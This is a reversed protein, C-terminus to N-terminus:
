ALRARGIAVDGLCERDHFAVAVGKPLSEAWAVAPGSVRGTTVLVAGTAGEAIAAGYLDRVQAAAVAASEAYRKCQVALVEGRRRAVIDIGGDGTGGRPEVSWGDRRLWRAVEAEFAAPELARLGELTRHAHRRRNARHVRWATALVLLGIGAVGWWRLGAFDSWALVSSVGVVLLSIRTM